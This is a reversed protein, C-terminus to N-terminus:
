DDDDDDPVFWGEEECTQAFYKALIAGGSLFPVIVLTLRLTGFNYYKTPIPKVTGADRFVSSRAKQLQDLRRIPHRFVPSARLITVVRAAM